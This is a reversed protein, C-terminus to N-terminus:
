CDDELLSDQVKEVVWSYAKIKRETFDRFHNGENWELIVDEGMTRRLTDYQLQIRDSVKSMLQNRTKSEKDGLSLYVHDSNMRRDRIYEDWRPFWVSPSAAACGRFSESEYCAWLSFLGALSYGGIIYEKCALDPILIDEIFSLMDKAGDGFGEEGFVPPAEWPSLESNWDKVHVAAITIGPIADFIDQLSDRDFEAYFTVLCLDKDGYRVLAERDGLVRPMVMIDDKSLAPPM